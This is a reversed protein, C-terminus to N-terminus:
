RRNRRISKDLATREVDGFLRVGPAEEIAKHYDKIYDMYKAPNKEGWYAINEEAGFGKEKMPNVRQGFALVDQYPKWGVFRKIAALTNHIFEHNLTNVVDPATRGRSIDIGQAQIEPMLSSSKGQTLEAKLSEPAFKQAEHKIGFPSFVGEASKKQAGQGYYEVRGKQINMSEIRDMVKQPVDRVFDMAQKAYRQVAGKPYNKLLEKRISNVYFSKSIGAMPLGGMAMDRLEPDVKAMADSATYKRIANELPSREPEERLFETDRSWLEAEPEFTGSAGPM